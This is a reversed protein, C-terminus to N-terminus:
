CASVGLSVSVITQFSKQSIAFMCIKNRNGHMTVGPFVLAGFLVVAVVAVTVVAVVVAAVAVAM